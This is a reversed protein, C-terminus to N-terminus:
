WTRDEIEAQEVGVWGEPCMQFVTEKKSSKKIRMVM